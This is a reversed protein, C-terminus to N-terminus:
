EVDELGPVFNDMYEINGFQLGSWTIRFVTENQSDVIRKKFPINNEKLKKILKCANTVDVYKCYKRIHRVRRRIHKRRTSNM